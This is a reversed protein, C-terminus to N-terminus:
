DISYFKDIQEVCRGIYDMPELSINYNEIIRSIVEDKEFIKKIKTLDFHNDEEYSVMPKTLISRIREHIDIRAYGMKVGCIIIEETIITHMSQTVKKEIYSENIVLGEICKVTETLIHELLLFCEPYIVRKIASDDLSRELWQNIYTQTMASEQNIVYRCLACIKECTIPNKKYPMASSGVQEEGFAEYIEGKGSLLRIDNAMKYISQCISSMLQFVMVDYKRSYTQGCINLPKEFGYKDALKQNLLECKSNDGNFLKLITDETGTTGKLGRFPLKTLTSKLNEIDMKIDSNWMTFRKGVTTLQAQQLHTYALTPTLKYQESKNKLAFFLKSLLTTVTELSKKVIIMDVNDNIFNSTAGLHIFPKAKPCIDSFAHIHAIIDHKFRKEYEEIIDYHINNFEKYYLIESKMEAIGEDTISDIGLEKQFIALDLWLTRMKIIKSEPSWLYSLLPSKYRTDIPSTFSSYSTSQM